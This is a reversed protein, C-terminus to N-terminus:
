WHLDRVGGPFIQVVAFQMHADTINGAAQIKILGHDLPEWSQKSLEYHFVPQQESTSSSSESSGRLSALAGGFVNAALYGVLYKATSIRMIIIRRPFYLYCFHPKWDALDSIQSLPVAFGFLITAMLRPAPFLAVM